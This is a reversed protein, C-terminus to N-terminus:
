RRATATAETAFHAHLVDPHFDQLSRLFEEPEYITRDALGSHQVIAHRLDEAPPRLSLIQVDVGRRRLEALESAVFTESIKPFVRLVYAVRLPTM